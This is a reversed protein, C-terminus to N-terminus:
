ENFVGHIHDIIGLINLSKYCVEKRRMERQGEGLGCKLAKRMKSSNVNFISVDILIDKSSHGLILISVNEVYCM